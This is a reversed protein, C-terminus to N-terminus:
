LLLGFKVLKHGCWDALVEETRQLIDERTVEVLRQISVSLNVRAVYEDNWQDGVPISVLSRKGM